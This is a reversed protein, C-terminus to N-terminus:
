RVCLMSHLQFMRQCMRQCLSPFSNGYAELLHLAFVM